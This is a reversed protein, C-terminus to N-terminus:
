DAAAVGRVTGSSGPARSPGVYSVRVRPRYRSGLIGLEAAARKSLDIEREESAFPGRDNIRLVVTRGNRLNEVEVLSGLPLTRHAATFAHMDFAEGSATRRGHFREGYWSAIGRGEYDPDHGPVYRVGFVEYPRGVRMHRKLQRDLVSPKRPMVPKSFREPPLVFVPGIPDPEGALMASVAPVDPMESLVVEPPADACGTLALIAALPPM